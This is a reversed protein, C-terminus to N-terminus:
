QQKGRYAVNAHHRCGRVISNCTVCTVKDLENTLEPKPHEQKCLATVSPAELHVQVYTAM